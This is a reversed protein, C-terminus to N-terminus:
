MTINNTVEAGPSYLENIAPARIDHSQTVRFRLANVPEWVLGAKWANMSGVTSYDAYRFALNLDILKAAASDRALPVIAEAYGESVHFSGSYPSNNGTFFGGAAAIEDATVDEKEDRYEVGTAVAIPGAWTAFLEGRLNAGFTQQEYTVKA